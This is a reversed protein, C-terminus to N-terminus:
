RFCYSDSSADGGQLRVQHPRLGRFDDSNPFFREDISLGGNEGVDLKVMWAGVGDPYFQDDWAGYLSNTFYVRKGDRSVEVMQPGGALPLDPAAPHAVRGVIGGLRVSGVEVPHAPDSVDYQKLEGTGWCSVYLFQDDVSLDIDTILPPVAGFPKLAPPLDDPDAPEAPVTIVKEVRWDDGDRFWRWVSGSLDDTSVVVGVFGWTANPDHSPRVELVMQHQQGLDVRQRHEGTALDWFHLAHGYANSLLLEPVVGNEIMSPSGWESSILVNQNLHWWADYHFHQPGRDTEWAGLVDFTDHDLLAIGGPGDGEGSPGGLCTMFVGNPGCHLTHPRSYGAKESLEEAEVTKILGPTRPDPQTDFIYLRSSRLGPVILYRRELGSMDHGEHMLASSCANWGFHHLEDGLGTVDTWGVLQGYTPSNEDVDVVTLADPKEGARDFAVVYAHTEPAAEAAEAATRYFTPDLAANIM